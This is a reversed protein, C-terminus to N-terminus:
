IMRKGRPLLPWLLLAGLIIPPICVAGYTLLPTQHTEQRPVTGLPTGVDAGLTQRSQPLDSGARAAPYESAM